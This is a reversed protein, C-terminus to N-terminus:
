SSNPNNYNLYNFTDLQQDIVLNWDGCLVWNRINDQELKGFVDKFFLPNDQNHGYVNIMIFRAIGALEIDCIICRGGVDKTVSHIKYEFNNNIITM